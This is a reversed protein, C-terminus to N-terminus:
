RSSDGQVDVKEWQISNTSQNFAGLCIGEELVGTGDGRCFSEGKAECSTCGGNGKVLEWLNDDEDLLFLRKM